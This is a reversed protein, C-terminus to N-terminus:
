GLRMPLTWVALLCRGDLKAGHGPSPRPSALASPPASSRLAPRLTLMTRAVSLCGAGRDPSVPSVNALSTLVVSECLCATAARFKRRPRTQTAMHAHQHTPPQAFSRQERPALAAATRIGKIALPRQALPKPPTRSCRRSLAWSRVRRWGAADPVDSRGLPHAQGPRRAYRLSLPLSRVLKHAAHVPAHPCSPTTAPQQVGRASLRRSHQRTGSTTKRSLSNTCCRAPAVAELLLTGRRRGQNSTAPQQNSSAGGCPHLQGLGRGAKRRWLLWWVALSGLLWFSTGDLRGWPTSGSLLGPRLRDHHMTAPERQRALIVDRAMERSCMRWM